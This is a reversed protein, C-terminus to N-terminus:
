FRDFITSSEGREWSVIVGLVSACSIPANHGVLAALEFKCQSLIHFYSNVTIKHDSGKESFPQLKTGSRLVTETPSKKM